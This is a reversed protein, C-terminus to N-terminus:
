LGMMALRAKARAILAGYELREREYIGMRGQQRYIADIVAFVKEYQAPGLNQITLKTYRVTKGQADTYTPFFTAVLDEEVYYKLLTLYSAQISRRYHDAAAAAAAQKEPGDPARLWRLYDADGALLAGEGRLSDRNWGFTDAEGMYGAAFHRDYEKIADAALRAGRDYSFIIEDLLQPKLLRDKGMSQSPADMEEKDAPIPLGFAELEKRRGHEWEENFWGALGGAPNRDVISDSQEVLQQKTNAQLVQARKYYAYGMAHPPLGYPFGGDRDYPALYQLESGDTFEGNVPRDPRAYGPLPALFQPLIHGHDDLLADHRTRMWGPEDRERRAAAPTAAPSGGLTNRRFENIFYRIKDSRGGLKRAYLDAITVLINVNDPRDRDVNRAYDLAKLVMRYKNANSAMQVSLNYGTNWIQYLHVSDFEPQLLRIMNIKTEVDELNRENKDTESTSWLYMVLPGRLGGLLLGLSFSDANQLRQASTQSRLLPHGNRRPARQADYAVQRLVGAGALAGLMLLLLTASVARRGATM